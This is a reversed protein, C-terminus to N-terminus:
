TTGDSLTFTDGGVDADIHHITKTLDLATSTGGAAITETGAFIVKADIGATLTTLGTVTLTEDFTVTGADVKLAETNGATANIYVAFSGSVGTGTTAQVSLVNSTSSLNGTTIIKVADAGAVLNGTHAVNIANGEGSVGTGASSINVGMGDVNTGMAISLANGTSAATGFTLQVLNSDLLGTQNVYIVHDDTGGDTGTNAVYILPATRIGAADINIANGALNSGLNVHIASGTAAASYVIDLVNGTNAASVALDIVNGSGVGSKVIVFTNASGTTSDNLTLAGNDMTISAGNGYATDLSGAGGVGGLTTTTGQASFVLENSSNVYLGNYSTGMPNSSNTQEFLLMSGRGTGSGRLIINKPSSFPHNIPKSM